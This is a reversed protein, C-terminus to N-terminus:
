GFPYYSIARALTVLWGLAIILGIIVLIYGINRLDTLFSILWLNVGLVAELGAFIGVIILLMCLFAAAPQAMFSAIFEGSCFLKVAGTMGCTPCPLGYKLKFGCPDFVRGTNLFGNAASIGFLFFLIVLIFVVLARKRNKTNSRITYKSKVM